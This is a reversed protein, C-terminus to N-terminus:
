LQELIFRKVDELGSKQWSKEKEKEALPCVIAFDLVEGPVRGSRLPESFNAQWMEETANTYKEPFLFTQQRKTNEIFMKAALPELLEYDEPGVDRFILPLESKEIKEPGRVIKLGLPEWTFADETFDIKILLGKETNFQSRQYDTDFIFNGLSYFIVKDGVTEYNM